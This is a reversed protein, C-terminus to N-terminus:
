FVDPDYRYEDYDYIKVQYDTDLVKITDGDFVENDNKSKFPIKLRNRSEDIIYYEYRDSRGKYKPRGFLPYRENGNFVFGLQQFNDSGSVNFRGQPYIRGPQVLPNYIKNLLRTDQNPQNNKLQQLDGFCRQKSIECKYIDNQLKEITKLLEQNTQHKYLNIQSFNERNNKLVFVLFVIICFLLFAYLNFDDRRFCISENISSVSESINSMSESISSM